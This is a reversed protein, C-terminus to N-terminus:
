GAESHWSAHGTDMRIGAGRKGAGDGSRSNEDASAADQEGRHHLEPKRM